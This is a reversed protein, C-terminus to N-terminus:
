GRHQPTNGLRPASGRFALLNSISSRSYAVCETRQLHHSIRGVYLPVASGVRYRSVCALCTGPYISWVFILLMFFINDLFPLLLALGSIRRLAFVLGFTALARGRVPSSLTAVQLIRENDRIPRRPAPWASTSKYFYLTSPHSM